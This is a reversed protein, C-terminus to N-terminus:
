TRILVSQYSGLEAHELTRHLRVRYASPFNIRLEAAVVLKSQAESSLLTWKSVVSTEWDTERFTGRRSEDERGRSPWLTWLRVRNGRVLSNDIQKMRGIQKMGIPVSWDRKRYRDDQIEMQCVCRPTFKQGRGNQIPSFYKWSFKWGLLGLWRFDIVYSIGILYIM